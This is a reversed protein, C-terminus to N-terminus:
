YDSYETPRLFLITNKSVNNQYEPMEKLKTWHPDAVFAKWHEDRAQMNDFTTMYTLNPMSSGAFVEGYFVANFNLRAFLGVEDGDNFMKVKNEYRKETPGEYSRLEYIRESRSGTLKPRQMTPSKSFSKMLVTEIRNFPVNDHKAEIYDKGRNQFEQDKNLNTQVESFKQLSPYAILVYIKKGFTATDTELPKFVGISSLGLKHMAPLYADKLFDDMRKGQDPKDLTYIKLEYWERVEKTATTFSLLLASLVLITLKKM